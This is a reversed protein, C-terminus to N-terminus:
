LDRMYFEPPAFADFSPVDSISPVWHHRYQTQVDVDPMPFDKDVFCGVAFGRFRSIGPFYEEVADLTWHVTSGCNPCFEYRVGISNPSEAFVKTEGNLEIVRDHPFWCSVQFVSGTRKQCYDCHCTIVRVPEGEVVASVKGCACEAIRKM